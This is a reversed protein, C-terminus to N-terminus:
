SIKNLVRHAPFEPVSRGRGQPLLLLEVHIWLYPFLWYFDSPVDMFLSRSRARLKRKEGGRTGVFLRTGCCGERHQRRQRAINATHRAQRYAAGPVPPVGLAARLAPTSATAPARAGALSPKGAWPAKSFCLALWAPPFSTTVRAQM